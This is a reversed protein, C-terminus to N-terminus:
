DDFLADFRDRWGILALLALRPLGFRLPRGVRRGGFDNQDFDPTRLSMVLVPPTGFASLIASLFAAMAATPRM